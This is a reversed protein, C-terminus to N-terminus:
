GPRDAAAQRQERARRVQRGGTGAGTALRVGQRRLVRVQAGWGRALEAGLERAERPGHERDLRACAVQLNAEIQAEWNVGFQGTLLSQADFVADWDRCLPPASPPPQQSARPASPAHPLQPSPPLPPLPPPPPPPPPLPPPHLTSPRPMPQTSSPPVMTSQAPPPLPPLKARRVLRARAAGQIASAARAEMRREMEQLRADVEQMLQGAVVGPEQHGRRRAALMVRTARQLVQAAKQRGKAWAAAAQGLSIPRALREQLRTVAGSGQQLGAVAPKPQTDTAELEAAAEVLWAPTDDEFNLSRKATPSNCGSARKRAVRKSTVRSTLAVEEALAPEKDTEITMVSQPSTNEQGETSLVEDVVQAALQALVVAKADAAAGALTAKVAEEVAAGAETLVMRQLGTLPKVAELTRTVMEMGGMQVYRGVAADAATAHLRAVKSRAVGEIDTSRGRAEAAVLTSAKTRQADSVSAFHGGEDHKNGNDGNSAADRQPEHGLEAATHPANVCNSSVCQMAAMPMAGRATAGGAAKYHGISTDEVIGGTQVAGYGSEMQAHPALSGAGPQIGTRSTARAGGTHWHREERVDAHGGLDGRAGARRGSHETVSQSERACDNGRVHRASDHDDKAVQFANKRTHIAALAAEQHMTNM